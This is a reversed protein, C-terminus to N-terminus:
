RAVRGSALAVLEARSHSPAPAATAGSARDIAATWATATCITRRGIRVHPVALDVLARRWARPELGTLERSSRDSITVPTVQAAALKEVRANV